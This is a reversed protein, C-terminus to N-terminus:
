TPHDRKLTGITIEAYRVGLYHRRAVRHPSHVWVLQIERKMSQQTSRVLQAARWCFFCGHLQAPEEGLLNTLIDGLKPRKRLRDSNRTVLYMVRELSRQQEVRHHAEVLCSSLGKIELPALPHYVANVPPGYNARHRIQVFDCRPRQGQVLNLGIQVSM